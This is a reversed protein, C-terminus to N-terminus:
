QEKHKLYYVYSAVIPILAIIIVIPFLLVPKRLLTVLIILIGGIVFCYGALRNSFNWNDPDSLAWPTKIGFTFNDQNKPMINGLVIFLIGLFLCVITGLDISLGLTMGYSALCVILSCAPIIWIVIKFAKESINKKRPDAATAWLCFLQMACLFVPIGFVTGTKSTWGDPENNMNFHTAITDPLRNWLILGVFLPMLTVVFTAIVLFKNKKIM